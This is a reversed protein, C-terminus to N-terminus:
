IRLDEYVYAFLPQEKLFESFLNLTGM